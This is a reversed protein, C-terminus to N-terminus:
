KRGIRSSIRHAPQDRKPEGRPQQGCPGRVRQAYVGKGICLRQRQMDAHRLADERLMAQVHLERERLIRELLAFAERNRKQMTQLAQQKSLRASGPPPALPTQVLHGKADYVPATVTTAAHASPVLLACVAGILLARKM